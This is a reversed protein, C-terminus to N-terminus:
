PFWTNYLKDLDKYGFSDNDVMETVGKVGKVRSDFSKMADYEDLGEFVGTLSERDRQPNALILTSYHVKMETIFPDVLPYSVNLGGV